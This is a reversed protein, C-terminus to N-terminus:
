RAPSVLVKVVPASKMRSPAKVQKQFLGVRKVARRLRAYVAAGGGPGDRLLVIPFLQAAQRLLM